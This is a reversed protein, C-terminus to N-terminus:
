GRQADFKAIRSYFCVRIYFESSDTQFGDKMNQQFYNESRNVRHVDKWTEGPTEWRVDMVLNNDRLIECAIKHREVGNEPYKSFWFEEQLVNDWYRVYYHTIGIM